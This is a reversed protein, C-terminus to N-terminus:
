SKDPPSHKKRIAKALAFLAFVSWTGELVAFPWMKLILAYSAALGAGFTNMTQCFVGNPKIRKLTTLCFAILLLTVGFWGMLDIPM